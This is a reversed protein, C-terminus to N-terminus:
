YGTGNQQIQQLLGKLGAGAVMSIGGILCCCVLEIVIGPIFVSGLAEGWGFRNVGKVAMINLVM